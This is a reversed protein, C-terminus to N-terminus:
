FVVVTGTNCLRCIEPFATMLAWAAETGTCHAIGIFSLDYARLADITKVIREREAKVLHMGGLIAHIPRGDTLEHVYRLTNIVGAHACGLIVVTGRTSEFFLAQDDEMPDPHKCHQDLFFAGGTDEFDTRRPIDGTVFLGKLIETPAKTPVSPVTNQHIRDISTPTTGIYRSSGDQNRAHKPAFAAPHSYVRANQSAQWAAELGGTHDYHGHSLVIADAQSLDIGLARANGTLVAGAGTDFLVHGSTTELWFSLGHEGSTGSCGATNEVLTTIRIM